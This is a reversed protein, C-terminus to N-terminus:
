RGAERGEALLMNLLFASFIINMGLVVVTGATFALHITDDMPAGHTNIWRSVIKADLAVGIAAMGAGVALSAELAYPRLFFRITRSRLGAYRRAMVAKALIGLNIVNFGVLTLLSGLALFHIGLYVSGLTTPGSALLAMLVTGFGFFLVGPVLYLYDPAYTVIFRLHRWGDRFTRLHPPRDRKDPHLVVPIETVRLGEHAANAVIETALEM